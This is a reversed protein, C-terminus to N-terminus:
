SVEGDSANYGYIQEHFFRRSVRGSIVTFGKAKLKANWEKIMRYASAKSIGLEDAVEQATIFLKTAM